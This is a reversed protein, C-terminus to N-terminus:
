RPSLGTKAQTFAMHTAAITCIDRSRVRDNEPRGLLCSSGANPSHSDQIFICKREIKVQVSNNGICSDSSSSSSSPSFSMACPLVTPVARLSATLFAPNPWISVSCRIQPACREAPILTKGSVALLRRHFRKLRSRRAQSSEGAGLTLLAPFAETRRGAQYIHQACLTRSSQGDQLVTKM